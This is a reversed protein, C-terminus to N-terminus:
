VRVARERSVNHLVGSGVGVSSPVDSIPYVGSGGSDVSVTLRGNIRVPVNVLRVVLRTINVLTAGAVALVVIARTAVSVTFVVKATQSNAVVFDRPFARCAGFKVRGGVAGVTTQVGWTRFWTLGELGKVVMVVGVGRDAAKLAANTGAAGGGIVLVDTTLVDMMAAHQPPHGPVANIWIM